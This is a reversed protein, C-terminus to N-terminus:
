GHYFWEINEIEINKNVFLFIFFAQWVFYFFIATDNNPTSSLASQVVVTACTMILAFAVLYITKLGSQIWQPVPVDNLDKM